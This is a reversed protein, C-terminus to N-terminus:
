EFTVVLEPDQTDLVGERAQYTQLKATLATEDADRVIFGNNAGSYMADVQATVDWNIWGSASAASAASGAVAPRSDWTVAGETWSGGARYVDITRGTTVGTAYLKLTASVPECNSPIEPLDFKVLTRKDGTLFTLSLVNAEVLLDSLTGFNAGPLAQNVYADSSADLTQTGGDVCFDLAATWSNNSNTTQATFGAGTLGTGIAAIAVAAVAALAMNGLKTGRPM